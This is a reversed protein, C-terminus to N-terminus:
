DTIPWIMGNYKLWKETSEKSVKISGRLPNQSIGLQLGLAWAQVRYGGQCLLQQHQLQQDGCDSHSPRPTRPQGSSCDTCCVEWYRGTCTCLTVSIDNIHKERSVLFPKMMTLSLFFLGTDQTSSGFILELFEKKTSGLITPIRTIKASINMM